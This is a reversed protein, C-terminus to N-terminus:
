RGDIEDWFRVIAEVTAETEEFHPLGRTNEIRTAQRGLGEQSVFEPLHAFNTYADQDYLVLSPTTLPQYLKDLADPTFLDGKLFAVPAYRAEPQNATMIAFARLGADVDGRFSRSLFYDISPRTVLLDFLGQGLLGQDLVQDFLSPEGGEIRTRSGFGTPSIFTLSRVLDPRITSARAAFESGLSLAVVHAPRGISDLASAISDAMLEPTYNRRGRQSHGYGPLDMALVQREQEFRQFLPRMEFSSAAANVGHVLLVPTKEVDGSKSEHIAISGAALSDILRRNSAFPDPLAVHDRSRFTSYALWGTAAGAIILPLRRGIGYTGKVSKTLLSVTSIYGIRPSLLCPTSHGSGDFDQFWQRDGRPPDASM